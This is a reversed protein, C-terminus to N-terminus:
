IGTLVLLMLLLLALVASASREALWFAAGALVLFPVREWLTWRLVFPLKRALGQTYPAAFLGPLFWGVTMVAPIAGIVVNPAGLWAAFAPLITSPSAFAIAIM